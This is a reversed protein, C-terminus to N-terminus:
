TFVYRLIKHEIFMDIHIGYYYHEWIKLAFVMAELKLDHTLHNKEHVKHKWSAYTIVKDWQM